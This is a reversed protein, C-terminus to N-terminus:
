PDGVQGVPRQEQGDRLGDVYGERIGHALGLRYGACHGDDVGRRYGDTRPIDRQPQDTLSRLPAVAAPLQEALERAVQQINAIHDKISM